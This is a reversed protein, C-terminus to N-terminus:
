RVADVGSRKKGLTRAEIRELDVGGALFASVREGPREAREAKGVARPVERREVQVVDGVDQAVRDVLTELEHTVGFAEGRALGRELRERLRERVRGVQDVPRELRERELRELAM